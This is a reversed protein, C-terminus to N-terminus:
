FLIQFVGQAYIKELINEYDGPRQMLKLIRQNCHQLPIDLYPLIKNEAM